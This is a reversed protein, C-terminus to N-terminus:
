YFAKIYLLAGAFDYRLQGSWNGGLEGSEDAKIGYRVTNFGLGFGVHKFPLYEVGLGSDVLAGRWNEYQLYFVDVGSKFRWHESLVVDFRAGIVPLPATVDESENGLGSSSVKFKIGTTHVGVSAALRVRDDNLFAYSYNVNAFWLDLESNVGTGAPFVTDGIQYDQQTVRSGDRNSQYYHFELQHRRTSGLRYFADVRFSTYDSDLGLGDELDVMTGIGLTDSNLQFQSKTTSIFGGLAISAKEWPGSYTDQAAATGSALLSLPCAILWLKSTTM